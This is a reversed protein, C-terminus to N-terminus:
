RILDLVPGVMRGAILENGEPILHVGDWAVSRDRLDIARGLDLWRLRAEDGFRSKLMAVANAQQEIHSDSAYPQTVFLVRKDRALAWSVADRVAGCYQKWKPICQEDVSPVPPTDSLRGVQRGFSESVAAAANLTGATTRSALGPRFVVKGDREAQDSGGNLILTSKERLVVPLIPYYGTLRFIPSQRHWLLLNPVDRHAVDDRGLDNYGEYLVVVDYNLFEYDQLDFAFAYAGQGPAGLNAVSFRRGVERSRQNLDRELYASIAQDPRHGFGYATSGGLMVLRTENPGKRALLPGRYGWVNIGSLGRMRWHLFVDLVVLAGVLVVTAGLMACAAFVLRRRRPLRTTMEATM